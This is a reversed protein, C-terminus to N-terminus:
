GASYHETSGTIPEAQPVSSTPGEPVQPSHAPCTAMVGAEPHVQGPQPPCGPVSGGQAPDPWVSEILWKALIALANQYALDSM